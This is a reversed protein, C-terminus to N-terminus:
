RLLQLLFQSTSNAQAVMATGSQVLIMRKSQNTAETAVDADNLNAMANTISTNQQRALDLTRTFSNMFQGVKLNEGGVFDLADDVQGILDQSELRNTLAIDQFDFSDQEQADTTSAPEIGNQTRFITEVDMKSIGVRTIMGEDPGVQFELSNDQTTASVYTYAKVFTTLGVNLSSATNVTFSVGGATYNRAAANGTSVNVLTSVPVYAPNTENVTSDSFYIVADV